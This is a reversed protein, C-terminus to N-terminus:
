TVPVRPLSHNLQGSAVIMVTIALWKHRDDLPNSVWARPYAVSAGPPIGAATEIRRMFQSM